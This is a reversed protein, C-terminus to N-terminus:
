PELNKYIALYDAVANAVIQSGKGNLHIMDVETVTAGAAHAGCVGGVNRTVTATKGAIGTILVNEANAGADITLYLGTALTGTTLDVTFSTDGAGIASSLEGVANVAHLSTPVEDHNFDTVDTAQSSDYNSVLIKRIDLYHTGYVNSLQTNLAIIQQYGGGGAGEYATDENLIITGARGSSRSTVPM